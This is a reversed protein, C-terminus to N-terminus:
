LNERVRSGVRRTGTRLCICPVDDAEASPRLSHSKCM